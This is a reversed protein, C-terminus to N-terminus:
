GLDYTLGHGADYIGPIAVPLKGQPAVGFIVRMAAEFGAPTALHTPAFSNVFCAVYARVSPYAAIDYPTSTAVAVLPRGTRLLSEVLRSQGTPLSGRSYTLVIIREAEGALSAAEAIERDTPDEGSATWAQVTGTAITRATEAAADVHSVTPGGFPNITSTGVVLTRQNSSSDFPLTGDNRVLVVSRSFLSAALEAHAPLRVRTAAEEDVFPNERVGLWAKARLVRLVSRDLRDESLDGRDAAALLGDVTRLQEDTTQGPMVIDAGAQVALVAADEVTWNESIAKMDMMDTIVIGDFGLRQQLLGTLIPHSLTAPLDPDLASFVIHATMVAGAGASFAAQFPPLHVREVEEMSDAIVPLGRHSDVMANGHGPFHKPTSLLRARRYGRAQAASLAAVQDTIDGFSRVGIVPNAPNIQVDVTPAFTWHFGLGRAERGIQFAAEAAARVDGAAAIGMQQPYATSVSPM